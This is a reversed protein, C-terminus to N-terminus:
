TQPKHSTTIQDFQFCYCDTANDNKEFFIDPM